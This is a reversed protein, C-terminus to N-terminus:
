PLAKRARPRFCAPTTPRWGARPLCTATTPTCWVFLDAQAQNAMLARDDLPIYNDDQRTYIVESGLRSELLKGLRQAIELVLDKELLGRRGVTGLDWGGHGADVVIRMKAVRARLQLDEKTPPPIVIAAKNKETEPTNPFCTLRM